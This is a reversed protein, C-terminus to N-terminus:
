NDNYTVSWIKYPTPQRGFQLKGGAEINIYDGDQNQLTYQSNGIYKVDYVAADSADHTGKRRHSFFMGDVASSITFKTGEASQEHVVWRQAITEHDSTAPTASFQNNKDGPNTLAYGNSEFVLWRGETLYGRM